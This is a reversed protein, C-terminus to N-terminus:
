QEKAEVQKAITANAAEIGEAQAQIKEGQEQILEDQEDVKKELHTVYENNNVSGVITSRVASSPRMGLGKLYGIKGQIGQCFARTNDPSCWRSVRVHIDECEPSIWENTDANFHTSKYIKELAPVVGDTGGRMEVVRVPLSKSGYRNNSTKDSRNNTNAKSQKQWKKDNWKKDILSTWQELKVGGPPNTRAYEAGKAKELKDYKKKLMYTYNSIRRGCQTAVAKDVDIPDGQLDFKDTLRQLIPGKVSDDLAKWRRIGLDMVHTRVEFGIKSALKSAHEGVAARFQPPIPVKLRGDKDIVRQALKGRMPGRTRRVTLVTTFYCASTLICTSEAGTRFTRYGVDNNALAESQPQVIPPPLAQTDMNPQPTSRTVRESIMTACSQPEPHSQPARQCGRPMELTQEFSDVSESDHGPDDEDRSLRYGDDEIEVRTRKGNEDTVRKRQQVSGVFPTVISKVGHSECIKNNRKIKENRKREYDPMFHTSLFSPQLVVKGGKSM